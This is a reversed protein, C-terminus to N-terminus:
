FMLLQPYSNRGIPPGLKIWSISLSLSYLFPSLQHWSPFTLPSLLLRDGIPAAQKESETEKMKHQFYLKGLSSHRTKRSPLFIWVPWFDREGGRSWSWTDSWPKTEDEPRSKMGETCLNRIKVLGQLARNSFPCVKHLLKYFFLSFNECIKCSKAVKVNM